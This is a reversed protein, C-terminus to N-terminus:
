QPDNTINIIQRVVVIFIFGKVIHINTTIERITFEIDMKEHDIFEKAAVYLM